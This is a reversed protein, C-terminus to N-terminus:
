ASERAERDACPLEVIFCAGDTRPEFRLDGGFSRAIARSLYLGLGTSAAGEQFPRFLHEPHPVGLGTDSVKITVSEANSTAAITLTKTVTVKM